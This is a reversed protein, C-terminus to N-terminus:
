IGFKRIVNNKELYSRLASCNITIRYIDKKGRVGDMKRTQKIEDIFTSEIIFASYGRNLIDKVVANNKKNEDAIMPIDYQSGPIGVFLVTYIASAIANVTSKARNKGIGEAIVTITGAGGTEYKVMGSFEAMENTQGSVKTCTLVFFALCVLFSKM